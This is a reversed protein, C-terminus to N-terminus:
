VYKRIEKALESSSMNDIDANSLQRAAPASNIGSIAALKDTDKDDDDNFYDTINEDFPTVEGDVKITKLAM